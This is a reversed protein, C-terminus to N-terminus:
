NKLRIFKCSLLKIIENQREIDKRRLNGNIDFHHKEDVEIVINNKKDYGDVWYGLKKIHFEGGNEAHQFNYGNIKGYEDILKCANMNYSPSIQGGNKIHKEINKIAALRKKMRTETSDKKGYNPNKKGIRSESFKKRWESTVYSIDKFGKRSLKERVDKRKSINRDGKRVCSSCLTTKSYLFDVLRIERIKNCEKCEVKIIRTRGNKDVDLPNEDNEKLIYLNDFIKQKEKNTFGKNFTFGM